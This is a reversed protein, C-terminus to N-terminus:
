RYKCVTPTTISTYQKTWERYKNYYMYVLIPLPLCSLWLFDSFKSSLIDLPEVQCLCQWCVLLNQLALGGPDRCIYVFADMHEITEHKWININHSCTFAFKFTWAVYHRTEICQCSSFVVIIITQCLNQLGDGSRSNGDTRTQRHTHRHTEDPISSLM